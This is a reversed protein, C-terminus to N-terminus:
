LKKTKEEEVEEYSQNLEEIKDYLKNVLQEQTTGPNEERVQKLIDVFNQRQLPDKIEKYTYVLNGYGQKKPDSGGYAEKVEESIGGWVDILERFDTETMEPYDYREKFTEFGTKYENLKRALDADKAAQESQMRYDKELDERYREYQRRQYEEVRKEIKPREYDLQMQKLAKQVGKATTVGELYKGTDIDQYRKYQGAVRNFRALSQKFERQKKTM